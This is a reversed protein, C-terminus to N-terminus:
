AEVRAVDADSTQERGKGLIPCLWKIDDPHATLHAVVLASVRGERVDAGPKEHGNDGFLDAVDDQLQLLLGLDHFCDGLREAQAPTRGALLAAGHVPLTMLVSTKGRAADDYSAWDWRCSAWLNMELSQGRVTEEARRAVARALEWKLGAPVDLHEVALYPLMLLLDGANIAQGEGHRVWVSFRGRRLEDHDQVDDHILSANHLLECAAAWAIGHEAPVGLAVLADLALQARFTRATTQLHEQVIAGLREFREGAALRLMLGKVADIADEPYPHEAAEVTMPATEMANMDVARVGITRM